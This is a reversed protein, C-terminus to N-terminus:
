KIQVVFREQFVVEGSKVRLFYLGDNLGSVNLSFSNCPRFTQKMLSRGSIDIIEALIEHLCEKGFEVFLL